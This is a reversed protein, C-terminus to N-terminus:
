GVDIESPVKGLRRAHEEFPAVLEDSIGVAVYADVNGAGPRNDLLGEAPDRGCRQPPGFRRRSAPVALFLGTQDLRWWIPM